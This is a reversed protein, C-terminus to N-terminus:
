QVVERNERAIASQPSLMPFGWLLFPTGLLSFLLFDLSLSGLELLFQRSKMFLYVLQLRKVLFYLHM